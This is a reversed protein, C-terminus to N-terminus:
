KKKKEKQREAKGMSVEARRAAERAEDCLNENQTLAEWRERWFTWREASYGKRGEWLESDDEYGIYTPENLPYEFLVKSAYIFYQAATVINARHRAQISGATKGLKTELAQIIM